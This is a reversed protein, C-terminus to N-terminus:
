MTKWSFRCIWSGADAMRSINYVIGCEIWTRDAANFRHSRRAANDRPYVRPRLHRIGLHKFENSAQPRAAAGRRQNADTAVAIAAVQYGVIEVPMSYQKEGPTLRVASNSFSSAFRFM